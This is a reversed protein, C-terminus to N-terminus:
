WCRVPLPLSAALCGTAFLPGAGFSLPAPTALGSRSARGLNVPSGLLVTAAGLLVSQLLFTPILTLCLLLPSLPHVSFRLGSPLSSPGADSAKALLSTSDWDIEDNYFDHSNWFQRPSASIDPAGLSSQAEFLPFAVGCLCLSCAALTNAGRERGGGFFFFDM